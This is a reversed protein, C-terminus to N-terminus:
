GDGDDTEDTEEDEERLIVDHLFQLEAAREFSNLEGDRNFDFMSVFIGKTMTIAEKTPIFVTYWLSCSHALFHPLDRCFKSDGAISFRLCPM